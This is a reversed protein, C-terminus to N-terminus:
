GFPIKMRYENSMCKHCDSFIAFDYSKLAAVTLKVNHNNQIMLLFIMNNLVNLLPRQCIFLM